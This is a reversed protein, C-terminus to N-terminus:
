YLGLPSILIKRNLDPSSGSFNKVDKRLFVARVSYCPSEEIILFIFTSQKNKESSTKVVYFSLAVTRINTSDTKSFGENLQFLM